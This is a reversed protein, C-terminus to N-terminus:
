AVLTGCRSDQRNCVWMKSHLYYRGVEGLLSDVVILIPENRDMSYTLSVRFGCEVLELIYDALM